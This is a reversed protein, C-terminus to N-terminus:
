TEGTASQPSALHRLQEVLELHAISEVTAYGSSRCAEVYELVAAVKLLLARPVIVPDPPLDEFKFRDFYLMDGDDAECETEGHKERNYEEYTFLGASEALEQGDSPDIDFIIKRFERWFRVLCEYKNDSM